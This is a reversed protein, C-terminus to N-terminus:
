QSSGGYNQLIRLQVSFDLIKNVAPPEPDQPWVMVAKCYVYASSSGKVRVYLEASKDPCYAKLANYDDVSIFGWRWDTEGWGHASVLANAQEFALRGVVFSGQFPPHAVVTEINVMSGLNPGIEFSARYTTM